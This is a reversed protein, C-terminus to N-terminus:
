ATVEPNTVYHHIDSYMNMTANVWMESGAISRLFTMGAYFYKSIVGNHRNCNVYAIDNTDKNIIYVLSSPAKMWTAKAFSNLQIKDHENWRPLAEIQEQTFSKVQEQTPLTAKTKM